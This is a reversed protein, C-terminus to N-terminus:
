NGIAFWVPYITAGAASGAWNVYVSFNTTTPAGNLKIGNELTAGGGVPVVARATLQVNFCANPFPIPFTVTSVSYNAMPTLHTGWQLILGNALTIYGNALLSVASIPDSSEWATGNYFETNSTTSNFRLDGAVPTAPRQATTGVPLQVAGTSIFAPHSATFDLNGASTLFMGSTGSSITVSGNNAFVNTADLNLNTCRAVITGLNDIGAELRLTSSSGLSRFLMTGNNVNGLIFDTKIDNGALLSNKLQTKKLLGATDVILAYENGTLTTLNSQSTVASPDLTAADIMQNLESATVIEGAVWPPSKGSNIQPM